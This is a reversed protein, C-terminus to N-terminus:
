LGTMELRTLSDLCALVVEHGNTNICTIMHNATSSHEKDSYFWDKFNSCRQEMWEPFIWSHSFTRQEWFLNEVKQEIMIKERKFSLHSFLNSIYRGLNPNWQPMGEDTIKEWIEKNNFPVQNFCHTEYETSLIMLDDTFHARRPMINTQPHTEDQISKLNCIHGWSLSAM